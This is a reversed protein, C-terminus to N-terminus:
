GHKVGGTSDALQAADIVRRIDGQLSMPGFFKWKISSPAQREDWEDKQDSFFNNNLWNLRETDRGAAASTQRPAYNGSTGRYGPPVIGVFEVAEPEDGMCERWEAHDSRWWFYVKTETGNSERTQAQGESARFLPISFPRMSSLTAGGDKQAATMTSAPVVRGDDAMWAAPAAASVQSARRALAILQLAAKPSLAACFDANAQQRNPEDDADDDHGTVLFAAIQSQASGNTYQRFPGAVIVGQKKAKWEGPTAARALAELKDLDLAHKHKDSM